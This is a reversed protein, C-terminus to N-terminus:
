KKVIGECKLCNKCIKKMQFLILFVFMVNIINMILKIKLIVLKANRATLSLIMKKKKKWVNILKFYKKQKNTNINCLNDIIIKYDNDIFKQLDVCSNVGNGNYSIKKKFFM